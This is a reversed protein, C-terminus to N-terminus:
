EAEWIRRLLTRPAALRYADSLVAEVAPWDVEELDLWIGVWGRHGLYKPVYFTEPKAAALMRSDGAPARCNLALRKDGHHNDLLWAFRRGRVELSLHRQGEVINAAAEPLANM